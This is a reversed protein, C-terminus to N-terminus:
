ALEHVDCAGLVNRKGYRAIVRAEGLVIAEAPTPAEVTATAVFVDDDGNNKDVDVFVRYKPM